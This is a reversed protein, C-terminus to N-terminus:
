YYSNTIQKSVNPSYAVQYRLHRQVSDTKYPPSPPVMEMQDNGGSMVSGDVPTDVKAHLTPTYINNDTRQDPSPIGVVVEEMMISKPTSPAINRPNSGLVPSGLYGRFYALSICVASILNLLWASVELGFSTGPSNKMSEGLCLGDYNMLPVFIIWCCGTLIFSIWCSLITIIALTTSTLLHPIM